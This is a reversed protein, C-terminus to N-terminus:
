RSQKSASLFLPRANYVYIDYFGCLVPLDSNEIRAGDSVIHLGFFNGETKETELTLLPYHM